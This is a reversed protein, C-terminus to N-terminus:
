TGEKSPIDDCMYILGGGGLRNMDYRFPPSYGDIIFQFNLFVQM